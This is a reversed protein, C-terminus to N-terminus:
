PLPLLQALFRPQHDAELEPHLLWVLDELVLDPRYTGTQDYDCANNEVRMARCVNYVHRARVAQLAGLTTGLVTANSVDHMISANETIWYEADGAREVILAPGTKVMVTPGQDALANVAGADEILRAQSSNRAVTWGGAADTSGWFVRPRHAAARARLSVLQYHASLVGYADSARSELNFVVALAKLWEARGLPTSETRSLSPVVHMGRDRARQMNLIDQNQSAGVVAVDAKRDLTDYFAGTGLPAIQDRLGLAMLLGFDENNTVTVTRAPIPIVQASALPGDLSPPPTGCQVLVYLQSSRYDPDDTFGLFTATLLKYHGHYSITIQRANEFTVKDPFYDISPDYRDVCETPNVSRSGVFANRTYTLGPSPPTRCTWCAFASLLLGCLAAPAKM